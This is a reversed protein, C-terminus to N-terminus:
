LFCGAGNILVGNERESCKLSLKKVKNTNFYKLLRNEEM